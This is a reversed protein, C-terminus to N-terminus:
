KLLEDLNSFHTSEYRVYKEKSLKEKPLEIGIIFWFLFIQVCETVFFHEVDYTDDKWFRFQGMSARHTQISPKWHFREGRGSKHLSIILRDHKILKM